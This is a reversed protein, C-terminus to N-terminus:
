WFCVAASALAKLRIPIRNAMSFNPTPLSGSRMRLVIGASKMLNSPESISLIVSSSLM